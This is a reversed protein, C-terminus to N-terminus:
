RQVEPETVELTKLMQSFAKRFLKLSDAATASPTSNELEDINQKQLSERILELRESKSILPSRNIKKKAM